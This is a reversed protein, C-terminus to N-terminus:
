LFDRNSTFTRHGQKLSSMPNSNTTNEAVVEFYIGNRGGASLNKNTINELRSSTYKTVLSSFVNVISKESISKAIM